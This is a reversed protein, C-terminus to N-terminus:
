EGDIARESVGSVRIQKQKDLRNPMRSTRAKQSKLKTIFCKLNKFVTVPLPKKLRKRADMNRTPLLPLMQPQNIIPQKPKKPKKKMRTPHAQM